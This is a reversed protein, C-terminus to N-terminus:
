VLLVRLHTSLKFYTSSVARSKTKYGYGLFSLISNLSLEYKRVFEVVLSTSLQTAVSEKVPLMNATTSDVFFKKAFEIVFRHKALISKALGAQVGIRKL